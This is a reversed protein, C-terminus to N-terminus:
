PIMPTTAVLIVISHYTLIDIDRLIKVGRKLHWRCVVVLDVVEVDCQCEGFKLYSIRIM